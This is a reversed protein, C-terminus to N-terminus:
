QEIAQMKRRDISELWALAALSIIEHKGDTITVRVNGSAKRFLVKRKGYSSDEGVFILEDPVTEEKEMHAITTLPIRDSDQALANYALLSQSIPVSGGKHGDQIGTNIDIESGQAKGLHTIPSRLNAEKEAASGPLPHGGCAKVIDRAYNKYPTDKVQHYWATVDSIPVWASIASFLGPLRGAALLAAHGGGSAGVLYIRKPDINGNARAYAVANAIDEIVFDSGLAKPQNNPGRFEPQIFAWSKTVCAKAFTIGSAYLHNSSWPHLVVLLPVPATASPSFYMAPQPQGDKAGEISIEQVGPPWDALKSRIDGASSPANEAALAPSLMTLLLTLPKIIKM